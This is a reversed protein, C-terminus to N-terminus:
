KFARFESYRIFVHKLSIHKKLSDVISFIPDIKSGSMYLDLSVEHLLNKYKDKDFYFKWGLFM